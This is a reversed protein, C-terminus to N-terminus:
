TVQDIWGVLKWCLGHKEGENLCRATLSGPLLVVLPSVAIITGEVSPEAAMVIDSVAKAQNLKIYSYREEAHSM